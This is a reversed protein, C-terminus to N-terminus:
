LADCALWSGLALRAVQTHISNMLTLVIALRPQDADVAADAGVPDRATGSVRISRLAPVVVIAITSEQRASQCLIHPSSGLRMM